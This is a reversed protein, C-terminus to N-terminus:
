KGKFVEYIKTPNQGKVKPAEEGKYVIKVMDGKGVNSMRSQLVKHSPTRTEKGDKKKITYQFGYAGEVIDTVEGILEDGEKEPLWMETEQKEWEMKVGGHQEPFGFESLRRNKIIDSYPIDLRWM